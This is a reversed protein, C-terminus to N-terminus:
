LCWQKIQKRFLLPLMSVVALGILTYVSTLSTMGMDTLEQLVTGAKVFVLSLPVVGVLTGLFFHLLPIEIIPSSVNVLWNPILPSVRLLCICFFMAHRYKQILVRCEEIEKPILYMLLKSGIFGALLYCCTAGVASCFSIVALALPFPFLYGLLISMFVSGPIMFSQLFIYATSIFILIEWYYVDQYESLTLGLSKLEEINTPFKFNERKDPPLAPLKCVMIALVSCFVAFCATLLIVPGRQSGKGCSAADIGRTEGIDAGCVGM